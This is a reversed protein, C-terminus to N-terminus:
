EYLNKNLDIAQRRIFDNTMNFKMRDAISIGGGDIGLKSRLYHELPTAKDYFILNPTSVIKNTKIQGPVSFPTRSVTLPLGTQNSQYLYDGYNASGRKRLLSRIISTYRKGEYSRNLVFGKLSDFIGGNEMQPQSENYRAEIDRYAKRLKPTSLTEYGANRAKKLLETNGSVITYNAPNYQDINYGKLIFTDSPQTSLYAESAYMNPNKVIVDSGAWKGSSHDRVITDTTLNQWPFRGHSSSNELYMMDELNIGDREARFLEPMRNKVPLHFRRGYTGAIRDMLSNGYYGLSGRFTTYPDFLGPMFNQLFESGTRMGANLVFPSVLDFAINATTDGFGQGGAVNGAFSGDGTAARAAAGVYTSPSTIKVIANNLKDFEENNKQEQYYQRTQEDKKWDLQRQEKTRNDQKVVENKTRVIVPKRGPLRVVTEGPKPKYKVPAVATPRNVRTNDSEEEVSMAMKKM